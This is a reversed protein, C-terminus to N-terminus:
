TAGEKRTRLKALAGRDKQVLKAGVPPNLNKSLLKWTVAACVYTKKLPSMYEFELAV